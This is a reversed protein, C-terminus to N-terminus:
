ERSFQKKRSSRFDSSKASDEARASAYDVIEFLAPKRELNDLDPFFKEENSARPVDVSIIAGTPLDADLISQMFPSHKKNKKEQEKRREKVSEIHEKRADKDKVFQKELISSIERVQEDTLIEPGLQKKVVKSIDKMHCVHLDQCKKLRFKASNSFVVASFCPIDPYQDKLLDKIARIHTDNQSIPNYFQHEKSGYVARWNQHDPKGFIKGSYNKNEFVGIGFRTVAIADIQTSGWSTKLLCDRFVKIAGPIRLRNLKRELQKEGQVGKIKAINKKLIRRAVLLAAGGILYELM